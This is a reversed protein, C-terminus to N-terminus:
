HECHGLVWLVQGAQVAAGVGGCTCVYCSGCLGGV